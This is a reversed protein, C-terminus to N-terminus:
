GGMSAWSTNAEEISGGWRDSATSGLDLLSRGGERVESSNERLRGFEPIKPHLALGIFSEGQAIARLSVRM